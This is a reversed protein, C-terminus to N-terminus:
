RRPVRPSTGKTLRLPKSRRSSNGSFAFNKRATPLDIGAGVRGRGVFLTYEKRAGARPARTISLDAASGTGFREPRCDVPLHSPGSLLWPRFPPPSSSWQVIVPQKLQFPSAYSLTTRTM